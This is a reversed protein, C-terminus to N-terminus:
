VVVSTVNLFVVILLMVYSFAFTFPATVATGLLANAEPCGTAFTATTTGALATPFDLTIVLAATTGVFAATSPPCAGAAAGCCM